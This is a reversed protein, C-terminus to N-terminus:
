NQARVVKYTLDTGLLLLLMVGLMVALRFRLSKIM